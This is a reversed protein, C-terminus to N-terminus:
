CNVQYEIEAEQEANMSEFFCETKGAKVQITWYYERALTLRLSSTLLLGLLLRTVLDPFRDMKCPVWSWAVCKRWSRSHWSSVAVTRRKEVSLGEESIKPPHVLYRASSKVFGCAELETFFLSSPCHSVFESSGKQLQVISVCM